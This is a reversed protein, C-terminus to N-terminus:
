RQPAKTKFQKISSKKSTRRNAQKDRKPRKSQGTSPQDTVPFGELQKLSLTRQTLNRIAQLYDSEGHCVLSIALGEEGARATRGVRHVYVSPDSPLEMNIVVPLKDIHVGRALLDTAVLVRIKNQQFDALTQIREQQVKNGHLAAATIGAKNIKKCLADANDKASIFVLAQPWRNLELQHILAKVKSGKNVLYLREEIREVVSNKGNSEILVPQTLLASFQSELESPLTASFMLTQRKEPLFSLISQIDPWFGMGLLRDAEDLVVTQIHDANVVGGKLFELLRGPTAVILPPNKDLESQQSEKNAGGTLLATSLGVATAYENISQHIQSALERTPAIIVAQRESSSRYLQEIVAWGFALTKGSGTQAIAVIDKNALAVPLTQTQVKTPQKFRNTIAATLETSLKLHRFPM